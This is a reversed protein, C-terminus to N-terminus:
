PNICKNKYNKLIRTVNSPSTNFKISIDKNRMGLEHAAIVNERLEEATVYKSVFSLDIIDWKRSMVPLNLALIKQKLKKLEETNSIILTVYGSSNIKTLNKNSILSNFEKLINEWSAHNKIQLIFDRRNTQNKINGDGDIFGALLAYELDLDFKLLTNPPNYTKRDKIDFKRKIKEVIDIDKCALSIAKEAVNIAGTYNIFEAFKYLHESDKTSLM